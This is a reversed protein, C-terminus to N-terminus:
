IKDTAPIWDNVRMGFSHVFSDSRKGSTANPIDCLRSTRFADTDDRHDSSVFADRLADAHGRRYGAARDASLM